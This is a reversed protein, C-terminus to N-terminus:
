SRTLKKLEDLAAKAKAKLDPPLMEDVQSSIKEFNDKLQQVVVRSNENANKLKEQADWVTKQLLDRLRNAQESQDQSGKVKLEEYVKELDSLTQKLKGEGSQFVAIGANLIDM